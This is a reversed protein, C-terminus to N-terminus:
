RHAEWEARVEAAITAREKAAPDGTCRGEHCPEFQGCILRSPLGFSGPPEPIWAEPWVWTDPDSAGLMADVILLCGGGPLSRSGPPEPVNAEHMTHDHVCYSCWVSMWAEGETGNSFPVRSTADSLASMM